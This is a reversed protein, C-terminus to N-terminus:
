QTWQEKGGELVAQVIGDAIEDKTDFKKYKGDRDVLYGVHASASIQTTDNALVFNCDRDKLLKHAVEVLEQEGAGSLLKFGVLVASPALRRLQKIIKPSQQLLLILHEHSSSIKGGDRIDAAKVAEPLNRPNDLREPCSVAAVKYDSVAMAHIIVDIRNNALIGTITQQLSDVGEVEYLVAKGAEPRQATKGCIYFIQSVGPLRAFAQAIACGLRGTSSNAIGRVNDIKEFTGGSTILINM